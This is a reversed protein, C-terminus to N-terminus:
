CSLLTNLYGARPGIWGERDALVFLEITIFHIASRVYTLNRLRLLFTFPVVVIIYHLFLLGTKMQLSIQERYFM